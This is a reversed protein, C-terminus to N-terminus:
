RPRDVRISPDNFDSLTLTTALVQETPFGVFPVGPPPEPPSVSVSTDAKLELPYGTARDLMITVRSRVRLESGLSSLVPEAFLSAASSDRVARGALEADGAIVLRGTQDSVVPNRLMGSLERLAEGLLRPHLPGPGPAGLRWTGDGIRTWMEGIMIGEFRTTGFLEQEVVAHIRDPAQFEGSVTFRQTPGAIPSREAQPALSARCGPFDGTEALCQALAENTVGEVGGGIRITTVMSFRLARLSEVAAAAAELRARAEEPQTAGAHAPVLTSSSVALILIGVWSCLSRQYGM